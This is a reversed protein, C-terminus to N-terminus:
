SEECPDAPHYRDVGRLTAVDPQYQEDALPCVHCEAGQVATKARGRSHLPKQPRAATWDPACRGAGVANWAYVDGSSYVYFAGNGGGRYASRLRVYRGM